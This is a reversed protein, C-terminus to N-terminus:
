SSLELYSIDENAVPHYNQAKGNSLAKTMM